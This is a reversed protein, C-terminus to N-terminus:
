DMLLLLGLKVHMQQNGRTASSICQDITRNDIILHIGVLEFLRNVPRISERFSFFDVNELSVDKPRPSFLVTASTM